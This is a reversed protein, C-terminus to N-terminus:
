EQVDTFLIIIATFETKPQVSLEYNGVRKKVLHVIYVTKMRLESRM